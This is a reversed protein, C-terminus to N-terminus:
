FQIFGLIHATQAPPIAFPIAYHLTDHDETM